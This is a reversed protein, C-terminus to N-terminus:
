RSTSASLQDIAAAPPLPPSDFPKLYDAGHERTLQDYAVHELASTQQPSFGLEFAAQERSGLCRPDLRAVDGFVMLAEIYYGYSSGHYHDYGWLDVQGASIGDYPNPDAVGTQFARDWAEGVPIVDTVFPAHQKALDYGARIDKVMDELSKGHWHGKEPYIQDARPWTAILRIDVSPNQAHLLESMRRTTEVLLAPNGPHDRDLLSYGLMVVHDWPRALLKAKKALHADLGAGRITELSVAYSLGAEDAMVKFLAPVGGFGEGNLDTVTQARYFRVPSLAGFIFSNGIFLLSGSPPPSAPSGLTNAALSSGCLGIASLCLLLLRRHGLCPAFSCPSM